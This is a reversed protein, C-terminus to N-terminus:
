EVEKRGFLRQWFNQKKNKETNEEILALNKLNLQQQQALLHTLRSIQEDKEALQSALLEVLKTSDDDKKNEEISAHNSAFALVSALILEKLSLGKSVAINDIEEKEKDTVRINIQKMKVGLALM